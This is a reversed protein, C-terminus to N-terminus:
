VMCGIIIKEISIEIKVGGVRMVKSLSPIKLIIINKGSAQIM